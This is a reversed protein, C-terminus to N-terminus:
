VARPVFVETREGQNLDTERIGSVLIGPGPLVLISGFGCQGERFFYKVPLVRFDAVPLGIPEDFACLQVPFRRVALPTKANGLNVHHHTHDANGSLPHDGRLFDDRQDLLADARHDHDPNVGPSRNGKLIGCLGCVRVVLNRNWRPRSPNGSIPLRLTQLTLQLDGACLGDAPPPLVSTQYPTSLTTISRHIQLRIM